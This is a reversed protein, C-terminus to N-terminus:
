VPNRHDKGLTEPAQGSQADNLKKGPELSNDLLKVTVRLETFSWFVCPLAGPFGTYSWSELTALCEQVPERDLLARSLLLLVLLRFRVRVILNQQLHGPQRIVGVVHVGPPAVLRVPRSFSSRLRSRVFPLIVLVRKKM